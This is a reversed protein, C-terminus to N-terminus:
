LPNDNLVQQTKCQSIRFTGSAPIAVGSAYKVGTLAWFVGAKTPTGVIPKTEPTIMSGSFAVNPLGLNIQGAPRTVDPEGAASIFTGAATTYWAYLGCGRVDTIGADAELHCMAQFSDGEVVYGPNLPVGLTTDMITQQLVVSIPRPDLNGATDSTEVSTPGAGGVVIQQHNGFGSAAAGVSCAGTLGSGAVAEWGDAVTGTCNAGVIGTGGTTLFLPNANLSGAEYETAHFLDAVTTPLFSRPPLMQNFFQAIKMGAVRAGPPGFHLGERLLGAKAKANSSLPDIFDAWVDIVYCGAIAAQQLLAARDSLHHRLQSGTFGAYYTGAANPDGKPTEAIFVVRHGMKLVRDRYALIRALTWAPGNGEPPDNISIWCVVWGPKAGWLSGASELIQQSNSGGLGFMADQFRVRGGTYLQAWWHWGQARTRGPNIGLDSRSDGDSWVDICVQAAKAQAEIRSITKNVLEGDDRMGLLAKGKGGVAWMLGGPKTRAKLPATARRMANLMPNKITGDAYLAFLGLGKGGWSLLPVLRGGTRKRYQKPQTSFDTKGFEDLRPTSGASVAGASELVSRQGPWVRFRVVGNGEGQFMVLDGSKVTVNETFQDGRLTNDGSGVVLTVNTLFLCMRMKGDNLTVQSISPVGATIPIYWGTPGTQIPLPDIAAISGGRRMIQDLSPMPDLFSADGYGTANTRMTKNADGAGARTGIGSQNAEPVKQDVGLPAYGNAQGRESTDQKASPAVASWGDLNASTTQKGTEVATVRGDLASDAADRTAVENALDSAVAAADGAVTTALTINTASLEGIGTDGTSKFLRGGISAYRTSAPVVYHVDDAAVRSIVITEDVTDLADALPYAAGGSVIHGDVEPGGFRINSVANLNKNLNQIRLEVGDGLPDGTATIREFAWRVAYKDASGLPIEFRTYIDIYGPDAPIDAGNIRLVTGYVDSQYRGTFPFPARSASRGTPQATFLDPADGPRLVSSALSAATVEQVVLRDVAATLDADAAKENLADELGTVTPIAQTGTHTARARLAADSANATANSAVSDLKDKLTTTFSATTNTLVTAVPQYVPDLHAKMAAKINAWTFKKLVNSAASDIGAFTDADAPAAKSAAAHVVAGVNGADTVDASTEVGALKTKETDTFANTDGQGEYAAKIEAGSMDATAGDEVNLLTRVQAATLDEQVGTGATVRGKLRATAMTAAKANTVAGDTLNATNVSALLALAGLGLATRQASADAAAALARGAATLDALTWDGSGNVYLLKNNALVLDALADLNPATDQKDAILAAFTSAFSAPLLVNATIAWSGTGSAGSKIYLGNFAPTGDNVVIGFSDADHALDAYLNARTQKGVANGLVLAAIMTSIAADIAPGIPLIDAKRPNHEGSSPVNPTSWKRWAFGVLDGILAM